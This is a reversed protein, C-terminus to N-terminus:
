NKSEIRPRNTSIECPTLNVNRYTVLESICGTALIAQVVLGMASMCIWKNVIDSFDNTLSLKGGSISMIKLHFMLLSFVQLLVLTKANKFINKGLVELSGGRFAQITKNIIGFVSFFLLYFVTFQKM